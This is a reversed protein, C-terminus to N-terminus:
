ELCFEAKALNWGEIVLRTGITAKIWINTNEKPKLCLYNDSCLLSGVTIDTEREHIWVGAAVCNGTNKLCLQRTVIDDTEKAATQPWEEKHFDQRSMSWILETKALTLLPQLNTKTLYYRNGAISNGCGDQLSLCLYFLETQIQSLGCSIHGTKVARGQELMRCDDAAKLVKELVRCVCVGNHDVIEACVAVASNGDFMGTDAQVYIDAEFTTKGQQSQGDFSATISLKRYANRVGYYAPKPAGYYDVVCTCYNNPFPEHFQWPFTGSCVPFRRRNAEVAYRIGEYQLFQSAKVADEICSVKNGFCKQMMTYHNWWHGRHFYYPNDRDAPWLHEPAHCRKLVDVGTMGEVGFESSLLSTGANYLVYQEKLGQYEWPGHVDHLGSPDKEINELTNNFLRGTPSSPLFYRGKDLEKVCDALVRIVPEREDIICDSEKGQLENGGGWIILSPHNKRRPIINRAERKMLALFEPEESPKNEIGSSSQIFEQWVMIGYEDCLDYFSEKEILGGGWVRFANIGAHLALEILRKLKKTHKLGYFVDIPVWNYGKMFIKKGNICATYPRATPDSTQNPLFVLRRIGFRVTQQVEKEGNSLCSVTITYLPQKGYGNPWWLKPNKIEFVCRVRGDQGSVEQEKLMTGNQSLAVLFAQTEETESFFAFSVSVVAQAYDESIATTIDPLDARCSAYADIWVDDWIGMHIMRPCFDWWYTMRSKHTKVYKTKSVQPQEDPAHDLVVALLNSGDEHIYQTIDFEAPTFMSHHEGLLVDNLYFRADYDVGSFHLILKKGKMKAPLEFEKRYIWTRQPIWEVALSNKEYFPDPIEGIRLLDATPCGPVVAPRWFRTDGTHQKEANRWIWDEALFDKCTWGEGSLLFRNQKYEM